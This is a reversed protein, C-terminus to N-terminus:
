PACTIALPLLLPLAIALPLTLTLTLALWAEHVHAQVEDRRVPELPLVDLEHTPELRM